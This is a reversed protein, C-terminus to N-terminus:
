YVTEILLGALVTPNTNPRIIVTGEYILKDTSAYIDRDDAVAVGDGKSIGDLVVCLVLFQNEGKIRWFWFYFFVNDLDVVGGKGDARSLPPVLDDISGRM